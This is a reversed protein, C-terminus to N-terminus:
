RLTQEEEVNLDPTNFIMNQRVSLLGQNPQSNLDFLSKKRVNNVKAESLHKDRLTCEPENIPSEEEEIHGPQSQIRTGTESGSEKRM